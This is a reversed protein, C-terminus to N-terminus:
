ESESGGAAAGGRKQQILHAVEHGLLRRGESSAPMFESKGFATHNGYTFAKAHRAAAVEQARTDSHIRVEGLDTAFRSEMEGRLGEPLGQGGGGLLSSVAHNGAQRQLEFVRRERTLSADPAVERPGHSPRAPSRGVLEQTKPAPRSM